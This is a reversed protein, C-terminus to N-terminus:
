SRLRSLFYEFIRRELSQTTGLTWFSIKKQRGGVNLPYIITVYKSIFQFFKIPSVLFSVMYRLMM